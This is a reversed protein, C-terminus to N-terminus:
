VGQSALPLCVRFTSGQGVMSEVEIKGSHLDVIEKVIALGLGSGPVDPQHARRGRYFREFLHPVDNPDIGSGTDQVQLCAQSAWQYTAVQVHGAPTYNIANATLNAIVQALQNPEGYAPPLDPAPAFTLTLGAAEASPRHAAVVQQVLTNLDIPAFQVKSAALELRSLNLIDDVLRTLRNAQEKLTAMYGAQKDLKGRELLEVYLKLNTIPTRLEHSVDSIFKSKLRDLETLRENAEALERTRAAVREELTAAIQARRLANAAIDAIAVLIHLEDSTINSNRGVWVVGLTEHSVAGRPSAAPANLPVCAVARLVRLLDRQTQFMDSQVDDNLYAQGTAMVRATVSAEDLPLRTGTGASWVGGAYVVVNEGTASDRLLVAAGDAKLLGLVQDAVIPLMDDLTDAARLATAVAVLAELERERQKRETIDEKVALFHTIIGADNRIPSISAFEWYLDGNKKKNHFEGRWEEGRTITAWMRQYEEHPTEGSKLIRPNQGIVDALQYGTLQMFKPNVYEIQGRLDTIVVSAPSQEVARHLKRLQDQTHRREAIYAGESEHLTREALRREGYLLLSSVAVFAWGKLSQAQVFTDPDTVILALGRDSVVIWLSALLVYLLTM